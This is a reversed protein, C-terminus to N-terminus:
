RRDFETIGVIMEGYAKALVANKARMLGEASLAGQSNTLAGRESAPIAAVFARKFARNGAVGLDGADQILGLMAPTLHHADAM